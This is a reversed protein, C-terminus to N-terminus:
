FRSMNLTPFHFTLIMSMTLSSSNSFAPRVAGPHFSGSPSSAPFPSYYLSAWCRLSVKKISLFSLFAQYSNHVSRHSLQPSLGCAPSPLRALPHVVSSSLTAMHPQSSHSKPIFLAIKPVRRSGDKESKPRDQVFHLGDVISIYLHYRVQTYTSCLINIQHSARWAVTRM